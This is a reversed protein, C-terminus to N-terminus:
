KQLTPARREVEAELAQLIPCQSVPGKGSCQAILTSLARRMGQLTQIRADIDKVKAEARTRVDISRSRPDVRLLLLEKIESLTFGLERARKIFRVRLVVEEPYVRYNSATRPPAPLLGCREYYHITRLNVGARGAVEGIRLGEM